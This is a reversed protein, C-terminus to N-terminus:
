VRLEMQQWKLKDSCTHIKTSSDTMETIESTRQQLKKVPKFLIKSQQMGSAGPFTQFHALNPITGQTTIPCM